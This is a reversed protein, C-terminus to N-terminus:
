TNDTAYKNGNSLLTKIPLINCIIKEDKVTKKDKKTDLFNPSLKFTENKAMNM